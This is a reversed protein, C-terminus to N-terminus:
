LLHLVIIWTEVYGGLHVQCKFIPLVCRLSVSLGILEGTRRRADRTSRMRCRTRVAVVSVVSPVISSTGLAQPTGLLISGVSKMHPRQSFPSRQITPRQCLCEIRSLLSGRRLSSASPWCSLSAPFATMLHRRPKCKVV